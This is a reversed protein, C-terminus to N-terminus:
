EQESNLAKADVLIKYLWGLRRDISVLREDLIRAKIAVVIDISDLIDILRNDMNNLKDRIESLEPSKTCLPKREIDTKWERVIENLGRDLQMDRQASLELIIDIVDPYLCLEHKKTGKIAM